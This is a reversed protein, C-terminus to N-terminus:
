ATPDKAGKQVCLAWEGAPQNKSVCASFAAPKEDPGRAVDSRRLGEPGGVDHM